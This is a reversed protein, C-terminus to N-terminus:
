ESVTELLRNARQNWTYEKVDRLAETALKDALGQNELLRRIEAAISIPNGPEHLLANEEHRLVEELSPLRSSVIPVGSAMYEFLKLPSTYYASFRNRTWPITCIDCARMWYPVKRNPVRANFVINESRVGHERAIRQYKPVRSMPGGVCLLLPAGKTLSTPLHKMAQILEPIGKERGMTHFRGVYGIIPRNKPLDLRERCEKQTEEIQFQTLDVADPEVTIKDTPFGAESFFRKLHDTITVLRDLGRLGRMVFWARSEPFTHAEFIIQGKILRRLRLLALTSFIDRSYYLVEPEPWFQRTRYLVNVAHVVSQIYFGTKKLSPCVLDAWGVGDIGYLTEVEFSPPVGYYEFPSINLEGSPQARYPHYLKVDTGVNSFAECMKIIQYGHAKETPLRASSLYIVKRM